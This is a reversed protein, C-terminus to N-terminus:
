DLWYVDEGRRYKALDADRKHSTFHFDMFRCYNNPFLLFRGDSREILNLPKHEQPYRSFGDAWDIIIGTHRGAAQIPAHVNCKLGELYHVHWAETEEGMSGWPMLQEQALSFDQTASIAHLPLGSWHAGSELLVHCYLTQYPRAYVGHWIAATTGPPMTPGLFRNDVNVYFHFPLNAHKSSM